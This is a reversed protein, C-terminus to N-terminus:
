HQPIVYPLLGLVDLAAHAVILPMVRRRTAFYWAFAIGMPFISLSATPGQYLHYSVRLLASALIVWQAPAGRWASLLYACVFVEEFGGNVVALILVLGLGSGGDSLFPQGDWVSPTSFFYWVFYFSALAALTLAGAHVLDMFRFPTFGLDSFRWGRVMLFALLTAGVLIEYVVLRHLSEASHPPSVPGILFHASSYIFLGFAAIIVIATEYSRSLSRLFSVFGAGM